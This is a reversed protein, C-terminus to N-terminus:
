EDDSKGIVVPCLAAVFPPLDPSPAQFRDPFFASCKVHDTGAFREKPGPRFPCDFADHDLLADMAIESGFRAALKAL